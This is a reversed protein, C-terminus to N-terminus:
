SRPKEGYCLFPLAETLDEVSINTSELARLVARAVAGPLFFSMGASDAPHSSAYPFRSVSPFSPRMRLIQVLSFRHL